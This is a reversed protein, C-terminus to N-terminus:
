SIPKRCEKNSCVLLPNYSTNLQYTTSTCSDPYLGPFMPPSNIMVSSGNGCFRCPPHMPQLTRLIAAEDAFTLVDDIASFFSKIQLWIRRRFTLCKRDEKGIFLSIILLFVGLCIIATEKFINKQMTGEKFRNYFLRVKEIVIFIFDCVSMLIVLIWDSISEGINQM